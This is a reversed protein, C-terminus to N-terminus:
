LCGGQRPPGWRISNRAMLTEQALYEDLSIRSKAHCRRFDFRALFNLWLGWEHDNEGYEGPKPYRAWLTPPLQDRRASGTHGRCSRRATGRPRRQAALRAVDVPLRPADVRGARCSQWEVAERRVYGSGQLRGRACRVERGPHHRRHRVDPRSRTSERSSKDTDLVAGALDVLGSPTPGRAWWTGRKGPRAPSRWPHHRRSRGNGRTNRRSATRHDQSGPVGHRGATAAPDDIQVVRPKVVTLHLDEECFRCFDAGYEPRLAPWLRQFASTNAWRRFRRHGLGRNLPLDSNQRLGLTLWTNEM